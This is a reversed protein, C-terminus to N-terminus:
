QIELYTVTQSGSAVIGYVASTVPMTIATGTLLAHGTAATVGSAGLYVTVASPNAIALAARSANAAIILTATSGVSIQNTSQLGVGVSSPSVSIVASGLNAYVPVGFDTGSVPPVTAVAAAHTGSLDTHVISTPQSVDRAM